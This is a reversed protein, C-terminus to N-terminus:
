TRMSVPKGLLRALEVGFKRCSTAPGTVQTEDHQSVAIDIMRAVARMKAASVMGGNRDM